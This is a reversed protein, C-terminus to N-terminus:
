QDKESVKAVLVTLDDGPREGYRSIAVAMLYDAALQPEDTPLQAIIQQWQEPDDKHMEYVGDSMMVLVDGVELPYVQKEMDVENLIGVPLSYSKFTKVQHRRKIFSPAASIKVFEIQGKITDLLALDVTAFSEEDSRLLLVANVIELALQHSAGGALLRELLKVTTSSQRRAEEGSGMGDSLIIASKGSGLILSQWSDGSITKGGKNQMACGVTVQPAMVPLLRVQCIGQDRDLEVWDSILYTRKMWKSIKAAVIQQEPEGGFFGALQLAIEWDKEENEYVRLKLLELHEKDALAWIKKEATKGYHDEKALGEVVQGIGALQKAVTDKALMIQEKYHERQKILDIQNLLAIELQATRACDQAFINSFCQGHHTGQQELLNCARSFEQYLWQHNHEWCHQWKACDSCVQIYVRKYMGELASLVHEQQDEQQHNQLEESLGTFIRGIRQIKENDVEEAQLQKCSPQQLVGETREELPLLAYIMGAIVTEIVTMLLQSGNAFYVMLLVNGTLFGILVGWKGAPRMLGGLIGALGYFGMSATSIGGQLLPLMGVMIGFVAGGGCGMVYAATLVLVRSGISQIDVGALQWGSMGLLLSMMVLLWSIKEELSLGNWNWLVRVSSLCSQCVLVFLGLLLSEMVADLLGYTMSMPLLCFVSKILLNIGAAVLPAVLYSEVLHWRESWFLVTLIAVMLVASVLEGGFGMTALGLVAGAAAALGKRRDYLMAATLWGLVFPRLQGFMVAQGLILGVAAMILETREWLSRLVRNDESLAISKGM